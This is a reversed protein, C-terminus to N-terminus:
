FSKENVSYDKFGSILDGVDNLQKFHAPFADKNLVVSEPRQEVFYDSYSSYSYSSLFSKIEESNFDRADKWNSNIIKVPNLHIYSFLWNFYPENDIHKAKFRGEFLGGTREHRKNFYMSYATCLKKMFVSVGGDQKEYVLIHFHNPMLCYAGIDVLTEIRETKFLDVFSRGKHFHNRIDVAESNNCLHLLALFRKYDHSDQFIIRKDTGRNYLHYYDGTTFSM